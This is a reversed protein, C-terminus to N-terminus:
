VFGIRYHFLPSFFLVFSNDKSICLVVSDSFSMLFKDTIWFFFFLHLSPNFFSTLIASTVKSGNFFFLVIFFRKCLVLPLVYCFFSRTTFFLRLDLHHFVSIADDHNRVQLWGIVARSHSTVRARQSALISPSFFSNFASRWPTNIKVGNEGKWNNKPPLKISQKKDRGFLTPM